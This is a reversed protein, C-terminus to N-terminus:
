SVIVKSIDGASVNWNVQVVTILNKRPNINLAPNPIINVVPENDINNVLILYYSEGKAMATEWEKNTFMIGGQDAALGKIELFYTKGGPGTLEFDYGCGHDRTDKLRGSEPLFGPHEPYWNLFFEEAKRGTIGRPVFLLPKTRRKKEKKEDPFIAALRETNEEQVPNDKQQLIDKVIGRLTYEDLEQLGNITNVISVSMARKHWGQRHPHAVDFEDRRFKIYNPVLSLAAATKTFAEKDTKFGLASLATKDFRSLYYAVIHGLKRNLDM